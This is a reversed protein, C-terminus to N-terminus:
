NERPKRSAIQENVAAILDKMCEYKNAPPQMQGVLSTFENIERVYQQLIGPYNHYLIDNMFRTGRMCIRYHWLPRGKTAGTAYRNLYRWEVWKNLRALLYKHSVGTALYLQRASLGTNNHLQHKRHNLVIMVKSKSKNHRGNFTAIPKRYFFTRGGM